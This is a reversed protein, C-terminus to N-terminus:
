RVDERLMLLILIEAQVHDLADIQPFRLVQGPLSLYLRLILLIENLNPWPAYIKRVGM